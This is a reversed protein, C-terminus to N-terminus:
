TRDTPLFWTDKKGPLQPPAPRKTRQSWGPHFATWIFVLVIPLGVLFSSLGMILDIPM